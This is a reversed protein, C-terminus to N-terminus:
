AREGAALLEQCCIRLHTERSFGAGFLLVRIDKEHVLLDAAARFARLAIRTDGARLALRAFQMQALGFSADLYIAARQHALASDFNGAQEQWLGMVYHADPNLDDLALLDKLALEAAPDKICTLMTARLLQTGAERQVELPLRNLEEQAKAYQEARFAELVPALLPSELSELSLDEQETPTDSASDAKREQQGEVTRATPPAQPQRVRRPLRPPRPRNGTANEPAAAVGAGVAFDPARVAYYFAQSTNCLRFDHSLGRLHESHGLFLHGGPRLSYAMRAVVREAAERTFYMLVNRCFIIDFRSRSWFGPDADVLNRQEFNVLERVEHVPEFGSSSETFWRERRADSVGRLSWERYSANKALAISRRNLDVATVSLPLAPFDERIRMVLTYAEQGASCGACLITVERPDARSQLAPLVDQVVADLQAEERFFYSEGVTLSEALVRLEESDRRVLDAYDTPTACGVEPLRQNIWQSLASVNNAHVHLGLRDAVAQRVPDISDTGEAIRM